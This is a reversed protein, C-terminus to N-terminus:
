KWKCTEKGKCRIVNGEKVTEVSIHSNKAEWKKHTGSCTIQARQISCNEIEKLHNNGNERRQFGKETSYRRGSRWIKRKWIEGM